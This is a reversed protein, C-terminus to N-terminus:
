IRIDVIKGIMWSGLIVMLTALVLLAKGLTETYLPKMYDHGIVILILALSVPLATLIWRSLRGQATLTRVLRRLEMRGRVTEIVRDLVEASNSGVERQLRAVLAVQDLDQNDMRKVAIQLADELNVGFQEEQLVRRFEAKSPETADDAVVTLAGVLSHGARLASALVDLNDPLQEAFAKRKRSIKNLIWARVGFPVLLGLLCLLFGGILYLAVMALITGAATLIVVQVPEAKIDALELTEAMRESWSSKSTSASIRSLFSTRSGSQEGSADAAASGAPPVAVFGSVRDVLADTRQSTFSHVAWGVLAAIILAVALMTWRSQAVRDFTSLRYPPVPKIVLKPTQYQSTAVGPIGAVKVRVDVKTNPNQRTQYQLLFERALQRGISAVLPRLAEPKNAKVYDGGTVNAMQVLPGAQYAPSQLGVAFVRVHAAKLAALVDAPKAVSGINQGDTLIIVSGSQAGSDQIMKLSQALADYNKTGYAIEPKNNLSNVIEQPSSSLPRQTNVNGNFTVIAIQQDPNAGKAFEKAAALANAIPKGKMTLSEDIALVVATKRAGKGQRQLTLNNVPGGNETVTVDNQSISKAYPLSLIYAREPLTVGGAEVIRPPASASSAAGALVAAALAALGLRLAHKM